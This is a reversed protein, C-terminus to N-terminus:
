IYNRRYEGNNYYVFMFVDLKGKNIYIYCLYGVGKM